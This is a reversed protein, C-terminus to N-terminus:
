FKLEFSSFTANPEFVAVRRSQKRGVDPSSSFHILARRASFVGDPVACKQRFEEQRFLRDAAEWDPGCRQSKENSFNEVSKSHHVRGGSAGQHAAPDFGNPIPDVAVDVVPLHGDM